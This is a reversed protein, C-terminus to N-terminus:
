RYERVPERRAETRRRGGDKSRPATPRVRARVRAEGRVRGFLGAKPEEIIEFEAEDVDVGLQDLALNRPRKLRKRQSKWGNWPNVVEKAEFAEASANGPRGPQTVRGSTPKSGTPKAGNGNTSRKDKAADPTAAAARLGSFLSKKPEAPAPGSAATRSKVERVEEMHARLHPDFRYMLTQQAIRYLNSVLFYLTVGGPLTFGFIGSFLPMIRNMAQMQPNM